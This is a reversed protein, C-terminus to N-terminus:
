TEQGARRLEEVVNSKFVWGLEATFRDELLEDIYNKVFAKVEPLTTAVTAALQDTGHKRWRCRGTYIGIFRHQQRENRAVVMAGSMGSRTTADILLKPEANWDLNPESAIHGTKWIPLIVGPRPRHVIDEPFGIIYCTQSVFLQLQENQHPILFSRDLAIFLHGPDVGLVAVDIQPGRPHVGFRPADSNPDNSGEYLDVVFKTNCGEVEIKNPLGGDLRLPQGTEPDRGSLVHRATVLEHGSAIQAIVGSGVALREDQYFATVRVACRSFSDISDLPDIGYTLSM